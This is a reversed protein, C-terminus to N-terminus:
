DDEEVREGKEAQLQNIREQLKQNAAQELRRQVYLEGILYVLENEDYSNSEEM